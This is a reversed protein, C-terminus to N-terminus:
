SMYSRLRLVSLFIDRLVQFYHVIVSGFSFVKGLWIETVEPAARQYLVTRKTVRCLMLFLQGRGDDNDDPDDLIIKRGM